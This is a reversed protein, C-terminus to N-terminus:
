KQRTIAFFQQPIDRPGVKTKRVSTCVGVGLGVGEGEGVGLGRAPVVDVMDGGSGGGRPVAEANPPALQLNEVARQQGVFHDFSRPRLTLEFLNEGLDATPQFPTQKSM